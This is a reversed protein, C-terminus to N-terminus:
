FRTIQSTSSNWSRIQRLDSIIVNEGRIANLFNIYSIIHEELYTSDSRVLNSDINTIFQDTAKYLAEKVDELYSTESIIEQNEAIKDKNALRALSELIEENKALSSIQNTVADANTSLILVLKKNKEVRAQETKALDTIFSISDPRYIEGFYRDVAYDDFYGSVYRSSTLFASEKIKLRYYNNNDKFYHLEKGTQCGLCLILFFLYVFARIM